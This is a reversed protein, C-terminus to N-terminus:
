MWQFKDQSIQLHGKVFKGASRAPTDCIFSRIKVDFHQSLFIGNQLLYNLESIFEKFFENQNKPKGSGYFVVVAFPKCVSPNQM